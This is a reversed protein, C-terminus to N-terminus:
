VSVVPLPSRLVVGQTSIDCAYAVVEVGAAKAENLAKAYQPDITLAPAVRNIGQHFVCYLLMARVDSDIVNQLTALHKRARISVADPFQGLGDGTCLTVSKVELYLKKGEISSELMFDARSNDGYKVEKSVLDYDAVDAILGHDLAEAVVKNAKASAICALGEATEVLEWTYAYKRKPDGSKSLWVVSGPEACGTMAGTNPCHVTLTEGSDLTVDALFRKYREHVVGRVLSDFKM